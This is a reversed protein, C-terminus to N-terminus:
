SKRFGELEAVRSELKEFREEFEIIAGGYLSMMVARYEDPPLETYHRAAEQVAKSMPRSDPFELALYKDLNEGM